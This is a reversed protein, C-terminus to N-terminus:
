RIPYSCDGGFSVKDLYEWCINNPNPDYKKCKMFDHCFSKYDALLKKEQEESTFKEEM